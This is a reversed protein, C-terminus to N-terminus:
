LNDGGVVGGFFLGLMVGGEREEGDLLEAVERLEEVDEVIGLAGRRERGGREGLMRGVVVVGVYLGYLLLLSLPFVPSVCRFLLM